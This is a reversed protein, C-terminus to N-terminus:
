TSPVGQHNKQETREWRAGEQTSTFIFHNVLTIEFKTTLTLTPPKLGLAELFEWPSLSERLYSMSVDLAYRYQTRLTYMQPAFVIVCDNM